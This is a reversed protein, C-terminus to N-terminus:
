KEEKSLRSDREKELVGIVAKVRGLRLSRFIHDDRKKLIRAEEKYMEISDSIEKDRMGRALESLAAIMSM